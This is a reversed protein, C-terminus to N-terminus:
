HSSIRSPSGALVLIPSGDANEEAHWGRSLDPSLSESRGFLVFAAM